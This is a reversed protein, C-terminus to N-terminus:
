ILRTRGTLLEQMMGQKITKYKSLKEELLSIEKDMDSLIQAIAEQEKLPPFSLEIQKVISGSLNPQGGQTYTKIIHKKLLALKYYLYMFSDKKPLIALVAQNIAANINTIAAVGATAGYLALLLTRGKVMKASSNELGEMTIKGDVDNIIKRNLDGSTIWKINGNYYSPKSSLPTGGAYMICIDGLKKVEWEGSFGDLRKKGTLLEQMTGEKIKEKKEILKELSAILNETDTLVTAIAKQESLPPLPINMESYEKGNIGPQGSRMSMVKVWNRYRGTHTFFKLYSPNLVKKNPTVKILFGAYVLRGDKKNYLYTKGTSAGTRAFVLDGDELYYNDSAENKVSKKNSKIFHGSESIDTIRLYTPLSENYDVAAANIGYRPESIINDKLMSVEWDEPIIGVETIKYGERLKIEEVM